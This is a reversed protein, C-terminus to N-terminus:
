QRWAEFAEAFARDGTPGKEIALIARHNDNYVLAIDLWGPEKLLLLNRAKEREVNSLAIMHFGDIIKVTLVALPVGQTQGAQKVLIGPVDAIGGSPFDAPLTFNLEITHSAPLTQDTNRRFSWIMALKREPVEVDARVMLEAPQGPGPSATETRWRVSGVFRRTEPVPFEEVLVAADAAAPPDPPTVFPPLLEARPLPPEFTSQGTTQANGRPLLLLCVALLGAALAGAGISAVGRSSRELSLM